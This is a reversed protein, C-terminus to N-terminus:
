INNGITERIETIIRAIKTGYVFSKLWTM